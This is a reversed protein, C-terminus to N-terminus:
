TKEREFTTTTKDRRKENLRLSKIEDEVLHRM